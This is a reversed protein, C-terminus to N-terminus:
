RAQWPLSAWVQEVLRVNESTKPPAAAHRRGLELIPELRRPSAVVLAAGAELLADGVDASEKTKDVVLSRDLLAVFRVEAFQERARPLWCLVNAFNGRHVEIAAVATPRAALEADLEIFHRLERLRCSLEDAALAMRLAAAWRSTRECVVWEIRSM